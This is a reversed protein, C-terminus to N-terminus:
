PHCAPCEHHSHGRLTGFAVPRSCSFGCSNCCHLLCYADLRFGRRGLSAAITRPRHRRLPLFCQYEARPPLDGELGVTGVLAAPAGHCFGIDRAWAESPLGTMNPMLDMESAPARSRHRTGAAEEQTFARTGPQVGRAKAAAQDASNYVSGAPVQTSPQSTDSPVQATPQSPNATVRRGDQGLLGSHWGRWPDPRGSPEQPGTSDQTGSASPGLQSTRAPPNKPQAVVKPTAVTPTRAPPAGAPVKPVQPGLQFSTIEVYQGETEQFAQLGSDVLQGEGVAHREALTVLARARARAHVSMGSLAEIAQDPDAELLNKWSGRLRAM